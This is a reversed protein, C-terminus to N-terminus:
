RKGGGGGGGIKERDRRDNNGGGRRDRFKGGNEGGDKPSKSRNFKRGGGGGSDMVKGGGGGGFGKSAVKREVELVRGHAMFSSEVKRGTRQDKVLSTISEAVISVVADPGDFDVFCFGRNPNLTIGLIKNGNAAAQKEFLARIEPEKTKDPINRIFLTAEATRESPKSQYNIESSSSTSSSNTNAVATSGNTPRSQPPAKSSSLDPKVFSTSKDATGNRSPKPSGKRGGKSGKGGGGGSAVLNAWSSPAKPKEPAAVEEEEEEEKEEEVADPSSSRSRSKSAGLRGKKGRNRKSKKGDSAPSASPTSDSEVTSSETVETPSENAPEKLPEIDEDDEDEVKEEDASPEYEVPVIPIPDIADAPSITLVEEEVESLITAVEEEEVVKEDLKADDVPDLFRLIDNKVLFQKKRGPVAANNLFFTHVFASTKGVKGPLSMHGTVVLLIGGGISEQADIAGREFDVTLADLNEVSSEGEGNTSKVSAWDFFAKRVREGMSEDGSSSNGNVGVEAAAAANFPVPTAPASPEMGRTITSDPQYFRNLQAPATLLIKYYQKIFASGIQQPSPGAAPPPSEGVDDGSM